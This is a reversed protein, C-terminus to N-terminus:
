VGNKKTLVSYWLDHAPMESRWEVKETVQTNSTDELKVFAKALKTSQINFNSKSILAHDLLEQTLKLIRECAELRQNNPTMAQKMSNIETLAQRRWEKLTRESITM